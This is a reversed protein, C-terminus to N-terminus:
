SETKLLSPFPLRASFVFLNFPAGPPPEFVRGVAEYADARCELTAVRLPLRLLFRPLEDFICDPQVDFAAKGPILRYGFFSSRVLDTNRHSEM